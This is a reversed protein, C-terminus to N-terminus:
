AMAEAEIPESIGSVTIAVALAPWAHSSVGYLPGPKGKTGVQPTAGGGARPFLDLLAQRINTDKARSDHCLHVMVGLEQAAEAASRPKEDKALLLWVRRAMGHTERTM